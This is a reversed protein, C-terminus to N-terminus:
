KQRIEIRGPTHAVEFASGLVINELDNILYFTSQEFSESSGQLTCLITKKSAEINWQPPQKQQNTRKNFFEFLHALVRNVEDVQTRVKQVVGSSISSDIPAINRLVIWDKGDKRGSFDIWGFQPPNSLVSCYTLNQHRFVRLVRDDSSLQRASSNISSFQISHRTLIRITDLLITANSFIKDFGLPGSRSLGAAKDKLLYFIQGGIEVQMCHTFGDGLIDSAKLIRMPVFPVLMQRDTATAEQQYKNYVQLRDVNEVILFDSGSYAQRATAVYLACVVSIM